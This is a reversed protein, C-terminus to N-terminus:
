KKQENSNAQSVDSHGTNDWLTKTVPINALDTLNSPLVVTNNQGDALNKVAQIGLYQILRDNLESDNISQNVLGIQKAQATAVTTIRNAEAEAAIKVQQAQAKADIEIQQARGQAVAITQQKQGEAETIMAEKNRSATILKNMSEQVETSPTIEGINIRDVVVGYNESIDRVEKFLNNNITNTGNLVDNLDMGGIIGRLISQCDLIVSEESNENKYVYAEVDSVHYKLSVEAKIMANEKTIVEFPKMQLPTQRLSVTQRVRYVVPFVIHLGPQLSKVYNGFREMVKVEGSHVIVVMSLIAAILVILVLVTIVTALMDLMKREYIM